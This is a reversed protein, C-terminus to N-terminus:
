PFTCIVHGLIFHSAIAGFQRSDTSDKANDGRVWVKTGEWHSCRKVMQIDANLPHQLYLLMGETVTSPSPSDISQILVEQGPDLTPRMSEGIIRRRALRGLVWFIFNKLTLTQVQQFSLAGQFEPESDLASEHSDIKM